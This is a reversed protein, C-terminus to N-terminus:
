ATVKKAPYQVIPKASDKIFTIALYGLYLALIIDSLVWGAMSQPLEFLAMVGFFTVGIIVISIIFIKSTKM